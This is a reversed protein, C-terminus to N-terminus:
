YNFRLAFVKAVVPDKETLEVASFLKPCHESFWARRPKWKSMMAVYIDLATMSSGLIYPSPELSAEMHSWFYKIREVCSDRLAEYNETQTFHQPTNILGIMAYINASLFVTWRYFEARQSPDTPSLIPNQESLYFIMAASETMVKGDPLILIPIEGNLPNLSKLKEQAAKLDPWASFNLIEHKLGLIQLMVEIVASGCTDAVCLQYKM